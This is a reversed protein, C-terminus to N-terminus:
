SFRIDRLKEWPGGRYWWLTVGEVAFSFPEFTESLAEHLDRAAGASVKNQVTIHPRWGQRDQPILLDGWRNALRERVDALARCDVIYSVGRGMMHVRVTRATMVREHRAEAKVDAVVDESQLGPLHHFLTLHAPIFNREPPFHRKRLNDFKQFAPRDMLATLILPAAEAM